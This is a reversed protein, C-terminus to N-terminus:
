FDSQFSHKFQTDNYVILIEMPVYWKLCYQYVKSCDDMIFEFSDINIDFLKHVMAFLESQNRKAYREYFFDDHVALFTELLLKRAEPVLKMRDIDTQAAKQASSASKEIVEKLNNLTDACTSLLESNTKIEAFLVLM